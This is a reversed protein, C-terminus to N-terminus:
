RGGSRVQQNHQALDGFARLGYLATLIIALGFFLLIFLKKM